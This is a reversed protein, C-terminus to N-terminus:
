LTDCSAESRMMIYLFFLILQVEARISVILLTHQFFAHTFHTTFISPLCHRQRLELQRLFTHRLFAHTFHTTFIFACATDSAFSLSAYFLTNCFHILLTHRLFSLLCHRQRLELQRIHVQIQDVPILVCRYYYYSSM